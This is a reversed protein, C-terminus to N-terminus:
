AIKIASSVSSSGCRMKSCGAGLAGGRGVVGGQHRSWPIQQRDPVICSTQVAGITRSARQRGANTQLVKKIEAHVSESMKSEEQTTNLALANPAGRDGVPFAVALGSSVRLKGSTCVGVQLVCVGQVQLSKEARGDM